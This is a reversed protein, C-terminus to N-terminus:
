GRFRTRGVAERYGDNFLTNALSLPGFLVASGNQVIRSNLVLQGWDIFFSALAGGDIEIHGLKNFGGYHYITFAPIIGMSLLNETANLAVDNERASSFKSHM